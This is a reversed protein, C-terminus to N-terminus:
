KGLFVTTDARRKYAKMFHNAAWSSRSMYLGYNVENALNCDLVFLWLKIQTWIEKDLFILLFSKEDIFYIM